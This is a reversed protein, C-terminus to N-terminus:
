AVLDDTDLYAAVSRLTTTAVIAEGGARRAAAVLVPPSAPGIRLKVRGRLEHDSSCLLACAAGARFDDPAAPDGVVDLLRDVDLPAHRYAGLQQGACVEARIAQLWAEMSRGRRRLGDFAGGGMASRRRRALYAALLTAAQERSHMGMLPAQVIPRGDIDHIELRPSRSPTSEVITVDSVLEFPWYSASSGQRVRIGGEDLALRLGWAKRMPAIVWLAGALFPLMPAAFCAFFLPVVVFGRGCTGGGLFLIAVVLLGFLAVWGLVTVLLARRMEAWPLLGCRLEVVGPAGRPPPTEGPDVRENLDCPPAM